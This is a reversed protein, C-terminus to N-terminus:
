KSASNESAHMPSGEFHAKAHKLRLMAQEEVIALELKKATANNALKSASKYIALLKKLSPRLKWSKERFGLEHLCKLMEKLDRCPSGFVLFYRKDKKSALKLAEDIKPTAYLYLLFELCLNKSIANGSCFAKFAKEAASLMQIKGVITSAPVIAILEYPSFLCKNIKPMLSNLDASGKKILLKLKNKQHM